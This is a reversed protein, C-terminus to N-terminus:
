RADGLKPTPSTGPAAGAGEAARTALGAAGNGRSRGNGNGNGGHLLAAVTTAQFFDTVCDAIGQWREHSECPRAPNCAGNGLLCSRREPLRQFPEVVAALPLSEADVALLFGGRPGRISSLVGVQTLTHLLKGLYNRPVGLAAAIMDASCPSDHQQRAVYLVARLAHDASQNVM